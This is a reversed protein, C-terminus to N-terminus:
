PTQTQMHLRSPIIRCSVVVTWRVIIITRRIGMKPRVLGLVAAILGNHAASCRCAENIQWEPPASPHALSVRRSPLGDSLVHDASKLEIRRRTSRRRESCCSAQLQRSLAAPEHGAKRQLSSVQHMEAQGRPIEVGDCPNAVM